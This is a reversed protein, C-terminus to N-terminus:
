IRKPIIKKNVFYFDHIGRVWKIICGCANSAGEVKSVEIFPEIEPDSLFKGLQVIYKEEVREKDIENKFNIMSQMFDLRNLLSVSAAWWDVEMM